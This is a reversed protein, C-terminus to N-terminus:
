SKLKRDDVSFKVCVELKRSSTPRKEACDKTSAVLSPSCDDLEIMELPGIDGFTEPIKELKYCHRIILCELSPFDINSADWVEIDTDEILLFKLKRFNHEDDTKWVTDRFAYCQLKLVELYSLEVITSMYEWPFGLGSLTLKRLSLPFISVPLTPVLVQLRSNPNVIICKLSELRHLSALHDFCCLPEVVNLALQIQIGLKKLKPVRGIIEKTCSRASIGSLTLLNPLLAGNYSPDPLDSGTVQLHRLERMDWIEM